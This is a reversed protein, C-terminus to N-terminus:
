KVAPGALNTVEHTTGSRMVSVSYLASTTKDAAGVVFLTNGDASFRIAGLNTCTNTDVCAPNSSVPVGLSSGTWLRAVSFGPVDFVISTTVAASRGELVLLAAAAILGRSFCRVM